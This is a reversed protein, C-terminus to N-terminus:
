RKQFRMLAALTAGFADFADCDTDPIASGVDGLGDLRPVFRENKPAHRPEHLFVSATTVPPSM